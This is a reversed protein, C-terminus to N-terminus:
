KTHIQHYIVGVWVATDSETTVCSLTSPNWGQGGGVSNGFTTESNVQLKWKPALDLRAEPGWKVNWSIYQFLSHLSSIIFPTWLKTSAIIKWHCIARHFIYFFSAPFDALERKLAQLLHIYSTTENVNTNGHVICKLRQRAGAAKSTPGFNLSIRRWFLVELM